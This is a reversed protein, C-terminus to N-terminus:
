YKKSATYLKSDQIMKFPRKAQKYAASFTTDITVWTKTKSMYVENWAHYVDANKTYGMVLKAPIGQSRLMSAFLASYDYCIGKKTKLTDDVNPIYTSPLDKIKKTDYVINAAIWNHIKTVKEADTKIGKVLEKAKAVAKTDNSWEINQISNLYVTKDDKIDITIDQQSKVMYKNNVVNELIKTKYTGNGMQTPFYDFTAPDLIDYNYVKDNLAIQMKIKQTGASLYRAGIIGKSINKSDIDEPVVALSQTCFVLVLIFVMLAIDRKKM